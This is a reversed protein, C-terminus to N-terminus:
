PRYVSLPERDEIVNIITTHTTGVKEMRPPRRRTAAPGPARWRRRRPLLRPAPRKVKYLKAKVGRRVSERRPSVWCVSFVAAQSCCAILVM